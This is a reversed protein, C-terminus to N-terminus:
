VDNKAFDQYFVSFESEFELAPSVLEMKIKRRATYRRTLPHTGCLGVQRMGFIGRPVFGEKVSQYTFKKLASM